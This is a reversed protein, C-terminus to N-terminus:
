EHIGFLLQLVTQIGFFFFDKEQVASAASEEQHSLM